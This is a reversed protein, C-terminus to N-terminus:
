KEENNAVLNKECLDLLEGDMGLIEAIRLAEHPADTQSDPLLTYDICRNLQNIELPQRLREEVFGRVRWRHCRGRIGSYHTTIITRAPYRNWLQVLASVLAHGEEPNTTRAPEDILSLVTHGAKVAQVMENLRLMEAGFSSLGSRIDQNDGMSYMVEHVPVLHAEEATVYCGFQMLCQALGVSTLLVSKGAMNAGTVLTPTADFSISVPQFSEGREELHHQVEPHVLQELRCTGETLPEPRCANRTVAWRAIALNKDIMALADLAQSLRDAYPLLQRTLQKRVRDEEIACQLTLEDRESESTASEAQHRLTHLVDSYSDSIFFSPLREGDIDLLDLVERLSPCDALDLRYHESISRVKEEILSLRKLEFLDIDSCVVRRQRVSDISGSANMLECLQLEIEEMGRKSEPRTLYSIYRSVLDLRSNIEAADHTWSTALMAMRGPSSCFHMEGVVYQLGSIRDICSRLDKM